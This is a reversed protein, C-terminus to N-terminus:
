WDDVPAPQPPRSKRAELTRTALERLPAVIPHAELDLPAAIGPPSNRCEARLAFWSVMESLHAFRNARLKIESKTLFKLTGHHAKEYSFFPCIATGRPTNLALTFHALEHRKKYSRSLKASLRAWMEAEIEDVGEIAMIADLMAMRIEFSVIGDFLARAKAKPMQSAHGFVISLQAEVVSWNALAQGVAFL